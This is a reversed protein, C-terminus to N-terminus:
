VRYLELSVTIVFRNLQVVKIAVLIGGLVGVLLVM